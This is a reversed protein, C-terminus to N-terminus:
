PTWHAKVYALALTALIWLVWAVAGVVFGQAAKARYIAATVLAFAALGLLLGVIPYEDTLVYALHAVLLGIMGACVARFFDDKRLVARAALWMSAGVVAMSLILSLVGSPTAMDYNPSPLGWSELGM